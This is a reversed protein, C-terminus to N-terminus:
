RSRAWKIVDRVCAPDLDLKKVKARVEELSASYTQLPKLVVVGDRLGM